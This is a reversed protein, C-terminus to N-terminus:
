NRIKAFSPLRLRNSARESFRGRQYLTWSSLRRTSAVKKILDSIWRKLIKKWRKRKKKRMLARRQDWAQRYNTKWMELPDQDRTLFVKEGLSRATNRKRRLKARERVRQSEKQKRMMKLIKKRKQNNGLEPWLSSGFTV